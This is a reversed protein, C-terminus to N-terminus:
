KLGAVDIGREGVHIKIARVKQGQLPIIHRWSTGEPKRFLAMVALFEPKKTRDISVPVTSDPHLTVEQRAILDDQLVDRDAKWLSSFDAQELRDKGHLQYIRVVVPLGSGSDDANLSPSAVLDMRVAKGGCAGALLVVPAFVLLGARLGSKKGSFRCIGAFLTRGWYPKM